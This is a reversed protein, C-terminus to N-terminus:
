ERSLRGPTHRGEVIGRIGLAIGRATEALHGADLREVEDEVTHYVTDIDIQTTSITHAPVGARAFVANDSRFFLREEPYPDPLIRYGSGDLEESIMPGLTGRDFGTLWFTRPGFKSVKGVM